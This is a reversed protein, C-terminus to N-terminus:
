TETERLSVMGLLPCLPSEEQFLGRTVLKRKFVPDPDGLIYKSGSATTFTNSEARAVQSSSIPAGDEHGPYGYVEGKIVKTRFVYQWKEIVPCPNEVGVAIKERHPKKGPIEYLEGRCLPCFPKDKGRCVRAICCYHFSHGCETVYLAKGELRELCVCCIDRHPSQQSALMQRKGYQTPEQGRATAPAIPGSCLDDAATSLGGARGPEGAAMQAITGQARALEQHLANCREELEAVRDRLISDHSPAPALEAAAPSDTPHEVLDAGLPLAAIQTTDMTGRWEDDATDVVQCETAM